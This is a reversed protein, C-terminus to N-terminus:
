GKVSLWKSAGNNKAFLIDLTSLAELLANQESTAPNKDGEEIREVIVSRAHAIRELM